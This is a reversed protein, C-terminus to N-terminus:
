TLIIIMMAWNTHSNFSANFELFTKHQKDRRKPNIQHWSFNETRCAFIGEQGSKVIENWSLCRTVALADAKFSAINMRELRAVNVTQQLAQTHSSSIPFVLINKYTEFFHLKHSWQILYLYLTRWSSNMHTISAADDAVLKFGNGNWHLSLSCLVCM